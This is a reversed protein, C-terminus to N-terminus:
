LVVTDTGEDSNAGGRGCHTHVRGGASGFSFGPVRDVSHRHIEPQVRLVWSDTFYIDKRYLLQKDQALWVTQELMYM